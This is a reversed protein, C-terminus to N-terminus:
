MDGLTLVRIYDFRNCNIIEYIGTTTTIILYNDNIKINDDHFIKITETYKGIDIFKILIEGDYYKLEDLIHYLQELIGHPNKAKKLKM